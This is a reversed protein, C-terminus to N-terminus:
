RALGGIEGSIWSHMLLSTIIMWILPFAEVVAIMALIAYILARTFVVPSARAAIASRFKHMSMKSGSTM